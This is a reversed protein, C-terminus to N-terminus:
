IIILTIKREKLMLTLQLFGVQNVPYRLNKSGKTGASRDAMFREVAIMKM